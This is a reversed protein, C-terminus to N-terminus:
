IYYKIYLKILIQIIILIKFYKLINKSHFEAYKTEQIWVGEGVHFWM